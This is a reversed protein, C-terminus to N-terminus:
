TRSSIFSLPPKSYHKNDVLPDFEEVKATSMSQFHLM